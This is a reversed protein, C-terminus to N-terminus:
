QQKSSFDNKINEATQSAKDFADNINVEFSEVGSFAYKCECFLGVILLPITVWFAFLIALILILVPVDLITEGRRTVSFKKEISKKLLKGCWGFFRDMTQGFTQKKSAERYNDQAKEFTESSQMPIETSYQAMDPKKVYGLNELYIIADLVDYDCAELAKKAQEYSVGTKERLKEVKELKDM